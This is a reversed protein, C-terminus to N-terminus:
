GADRPSRVVVDRYIALTKAAVDGYREDWAGSSSSSCGSGSMATLDEHATVGAEVLPPDEVSPQM